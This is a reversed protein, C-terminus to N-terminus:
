IKLVSLQEQEFIGLQCNFPTTKYYYPISAELNETFSLILTKENITIAAYGKVENGKYDNIKEIIPQENNVSITTIQFGKVSSTLMRQCSSIKNYKISKQQENVQAQESHYINYFKNGTKIKNTEVDYQHNFNFVQKYKEKAYDIVVVSDDTLWVCRNHLHLEDSWSSIVIDSNTTNFYEIPFRQIYGKNKWSNIPYTVAKDFVVTNHASYNKLNLRETCERYTYRGSDSLIHENGICLEIHNNMFHGHGFGHNINFLMLEFENRYIHVIGDQINNAPPINNIDLNDFIVDAQHQDSDGMAALVGSQMRLNVLTSKANDLTARVFKYEPLSAVKNLQNIVEFQYLTSSENHFGSASFQMELMQKLRSRHTEEDIKICPLKYGVEILSCTQIIGWNLLLHRDLWNDELYKVQSNISTIILKLDEDSFINLYKIWQSLRIATDITRIYDSKLNVTKIWTLILEQLKQREDFLEVNLERLYEMRNLMFTWESDGFPNMSWDLDPNAVIRPDQELDLPHNFCFKNEMLLKASM